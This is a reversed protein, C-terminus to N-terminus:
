NWNIQKLKRGGYRFTYCFPGLSDNVSKEIVFPWIRLVTMSFEFFDIGNDIKMIFLRYGEELLKIMIESIGKKFHDVALFVSESLPFQNEVGEYWSHIEFKLEVQLEHIAKLANVLEDPFNPDILIKLSKM